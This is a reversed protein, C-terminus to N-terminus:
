YLLFLLFVLFSSLFSDMNVSLMVFLFSLEKSHSVSNNLMLHEINFSNSGYVKIDDYFTQPLIFM